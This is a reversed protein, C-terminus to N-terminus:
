LREFFYPIEKGDGSIVARISNGTLQYSIKKPFDHQPNECVFGSPTIETIKFYVESKNEPVDAVYYLEKDKLVIKLKETYTTDTGTMHYAVGIMQHQDKKWTEISTRGPKANTRKWKGVLWELQSISKSGQQTQATCSFGIFLLLTVIAAKM